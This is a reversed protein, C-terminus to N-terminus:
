SPRRSPAAPRIGPRPRSSTSACSSSTPPASGGATRRSRRPAGRAACGAATRPTGPGGPTASGPCRSSWPPRRNGRPSPPPDNAPRPTTSSPAPHFENRPTPRTSSPRRVAYVNHPAARTTMRHFGDARSDQSLVQLGADQVVTVYTQVGGSFTLLGGLPAAIATDMPRISRVPGIEPPLDSHYVAVFRTIGGEVVQERVMDAATLGTQPRADVSNEIKVALAPRDAIPDAPVGTLPWAPRVAAHARRRCIRPVAVRVAAERGGAVHGCRHDGAGRASWESVAGPGRVATRRPGEEAPGPARRPAPARERGPAPGPRPPGPCTLVEQSPAANGRRYRCPRGPEAGRSRPAAPRRSPRRWYDDRRTSGQTV